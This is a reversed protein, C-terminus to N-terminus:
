LTQKLKGARGINFAPRTSMLLRRNEQLQENYGRQPVCFLCKLQEKERVARSMRVGNGQYDRKRNRSKHTQITVLLDRRKGQVCCM